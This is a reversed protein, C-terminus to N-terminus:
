GSSRSSLPLRTRQFRRRPPVSPRTEAPVREARLSPRDAFGSRDGPREGPLPRPPYASRTFDVRPTLPAREGATEGTNEGVRAEANAELIRYILDRKRLHSYGGVDLDRAIRQLESVKKAELSAITM